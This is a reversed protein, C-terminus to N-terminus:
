IACNVTSPVFAAIKDKNTSLWCYGDTLTAIGRFAKITKGLSMIVTVPKIDVPMNRGKETRIFRIEADCSKCRPM